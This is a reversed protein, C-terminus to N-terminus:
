TAAFPDSSDASEGAADAYETGCDGYDRDDSGAGYDARRELRGHGMVIGLAFEPSGFRFWANELLFAGRRHRTPLIM